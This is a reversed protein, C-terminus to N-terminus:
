RKKVNLRGQMRFVRGAMAWPSPLRAGPVGRAGEPLRELDEQYLALALAIAAAIVGNDPAIAEPSPAPERAPLFGPAGIEQLSLKGTEPGAEWQALIRPLWAALVALLGGLFLLVVWGLTWTWLAM